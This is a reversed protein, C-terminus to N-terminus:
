FLLLLIQMSYVTTTPLLLQYCLGDYMERNLYTPLLVLVTISGVYRCVLVLVLVLQQSSSSSGVEVRRIRTRSRSGLGFGQIELRWTLILFYATRLDSIQPLLLYITFHEFHLFIYFNGSGVRMNSTSRHRSSSSSGVYQQMSGTTHVESTPLLLVLTM